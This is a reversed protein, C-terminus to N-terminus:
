FRGGLSFGGGSPLWMPAGYLKSDGLKDKAKDSSEGGGAVVGWVIGGVLAAGGVAMLGAGFLTYNDHKGAQSKEDDTAGPVCKKAALGPNQSSDCNKPLDPATLYLVAGAGAVVAGSGAVIWPLSSGSKAPAGSGAAGDASAAGEALKKLTVSVAKASDTGSLSFSTKQETYGDATVRLTHEGAAMEIPSDVPAGTIEKDDVFVKLGSPKAELGELHLLFGPSKSPTADLGAQCKARLKSCTDVACAKYFDRAQGLKGEKKSDEAAELSIACDAPEGKPKPKKAAFAVGSTLFIAALTPSLVARANRM